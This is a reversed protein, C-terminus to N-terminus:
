LVERSEVSRSWAFFKQGDAKGSSVTFSWAARLLVSQHYKERLSEARDENEGRLWSHQMEESIKAICIYFGGMLPDLTGEAISGGQREAAYRVFQINDSPDIVFIGSESKEIGGVNDFRICVGEDRASAKASELRDGLDYESVGWGVLWIHSTGSRILNEVHSWFGSEDESGFPQDELGSLRVADVLARLEFDEVSQGLGSSGIMVSTDLIEDAVFCDKPLLSAIGFQIEANIEDSVIVSCSSVVWDSYGRLDASASALESNVYASVKEVDVDAAAVKQAVLMGRRDSLRALTDKLSNISRATEIPLLSLWDGDDILRVLNDISYQPPLQEDRIQAFEWARPAMMVIAARALFGDIEVLHVGGSEQQDIEWWSWKWRQSVDDANTASLLLMVISIDSDRADALADILDSVLQVEVEDEEEDEDGRALYLSLAIAGMFSEIYLEAGEPARSSRLVDTVTKIVIRSEARLLPKGAPSGVLLLILERLILQTVQSRESRDLYPLSRLSGAFVQGSKHSRRVMLGLIRVLIGVYVQSFGDLQAHEFWKALRGRIFAALDRAYGLGDEPSREIQGLVFHPIDFIWQYNSVEISQSPDVRGLGAADIIDGLVDLGYELDHPRQNPIAEYIVTAVHRHVVMPARVFNEIWEGSGYKVLHRALKQLQAVKAKDVDGDVSISPAQGTGVSVDPGLASVRFFGSEGRSLYEPCSNRDFHIDLRLKKAESALIAVSNKQIHLLQTAQFPDGMLLSAAQRSVRSNRTIAALNANLEALDGKLRDDLPSGSLGGIAIGLYKRAGRDFLEPRAILDFGKKFVWLTRVIVFVTAIGALALGIASPASLVGVISGALLTLSLQLYRSWGIETAIVAGSPAVRSASTITTALLTYGLLPAVAGVAAHVGLLAIWLSYIIQQDTLLASYRPIAGQVFISIESQFALGLNTLVLFIAFTLVLHKFQTAVAIVKRGYVKAQEPLADKM